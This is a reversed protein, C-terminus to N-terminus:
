LRFAAMGAKALVLKSLMAILEQSIKGKDLLMRFVHHRFLGDSRPLFSTVSVTDTIRLTVTFEHLDISFDHESNFGGLNDLAGGPTIWFRVRHLSHQPSLLVM